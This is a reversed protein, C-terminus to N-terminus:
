DEKQIDLYKVSVVISADVHVETDKKGPLVSKKTLTEVKNFRVSETEMQIIPVELDKYVQSRIKKFIEAVAEDLTKGQGKVVITIPEQKLLERNLNM